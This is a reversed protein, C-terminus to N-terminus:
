AATLVPSPQLPLGQNDVVMLTRDLASQQPDYWVSVTGSLAGGSVTLRVVSASQRVASSITRAGSGDTVNFGVIGSTPTIDTGSGTSPWALTVDVTSAGSLAASAVGPGSYKVSSTWRAVAAAAIRAASKDFGNPDAPGAGLHVTDQRTLDCNDATLFVNAVDIAMQAQQLRMARMNADYSTQRGLPQVIIPIASNGLTTRMYAWVTKTYAVWNALTVTGDFPAALAIAEAQGQDWLIASRNYKAGYYSAINAVWSVLVPGPINNYQDWWFKKSATSGDWAAWSTGGGADPTMSGATMIVSSGGTATTAFSWALEYTPNGTFNALSRVQPDFVRKAATDATLGTSASAVTDMYQMLSQGSGILQYRTPYNATTQSATWYARQNQSVAWVENDTLASANQWVCVEYVPGNHSQTLAGNNGLVLRQSAAGTVGHPRATWLKRLDAGGSVNAGTQNWWMNRIRANTPTGDEVLLEGRKTYMVSEGAAQYAGFVLGNAGTGYGLLPGDANSYVAPSRAHTGASSWGFTGAVVAIAINETGGINLWTGATTMNMTKSTFDIYAGDYNTPANPFVLQPRATSSFDRANGSQDYWTAVTFTTGNGYAAWTATPADYTGDAKFGLVRLTNGSDRVTLCNGAYGSVVKRLSYVASLPQSTATPAIAAPTPEQYLGAGAMIAGALRQYFARSFAM